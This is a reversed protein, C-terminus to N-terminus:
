EIILAEIRALLGQTWVDNPNAEVAERAETLLAQAEDFNGMGHMCAALWLRTPEHSGGSRELNKRLTVEADAFAGMRVQAAGLTALCDVNNAHVGSAGRLGLELALERDQQSAESISNLACALNAAVLQTTPHQEGQTREMAPLLAQYQERAEEFRGLTLFIMAMGNRMNTTQEHDEGLVARAAALSEANVRLADDFRAVGTYAQALMNTARLSNIAGAGRVRTNMERVRELLSVAEVHRGLLLLMGGQNALANLTLSNEAGLLEASRLTIERFAELAEEVHGARGLAAASVTAAEIELEIGVVVEPSPGEITDLVEALLAASEDPRESRGLLNARYVATNITDPHGEGLVRRQDELVEGVLALREDLREAVLARYFAARLTEAHEPGLAETRLAYARDLHRRALGHDDLLSYTRGLSYRISAVVLPMSEFRGGPAAAVEIRDTAVKLMELMARGGLEDGTPRAAALIDETLFGNVAESVAVQDVLRRNGASQVYITALLGAAGLLVALAAAAALSRNRTVWKRLEAVPGAEYAGVVRNELYARLDSALESMDAYREHRDRAMARECIAVLEGPADPAVSALAEPPGSQVQYWVGHASIRMGPKVYPMHGALLQYLMAGLSYVDSHPGMGQLDGRAQEPSMYAPTGMVDGDMTILPSDLNDEHEAHRPSKVTVSTLESQIRLDKDDPRDLVRALGWDMAYVEGFKGVMVNAPKLDRHIVGKAHAYAMAECLKLMVNLVRTRNWGEREEPLLAFIAGLDRGKVMKMTFYARGDENIGLEHVPVIGPHDLQGTVQAEELFRGLTRSRASGDSSAAGDEDTLIVKMALERRLDEDWVRMIAGQGGRAIQDRTRYRDEECGRAVLRGLTESIFGASEDHGRSTLPGAELGFQAALREALAASGPPGSPSSACELLARAAAALEPDSGGTETLLTEREEEGVNFLINFLEILNAHTM